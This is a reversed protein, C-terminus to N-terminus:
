WCRSSEDILNIELGEMEGFIEEIGVILQVFSFSDIYSNSGYIQVSSDHPIKEDAILSKM